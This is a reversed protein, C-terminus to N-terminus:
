AKKKSHTAPETPLYWHAGCCPSYLEQGEPDLPVRFHGPCNPCEMVARYMGWFLGGLSLGAPPLDDKHREIFANGERSFTELILETM